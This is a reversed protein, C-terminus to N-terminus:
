LEPNKPGFRLMTHHDHKETAIPSRSLSVIKEQHRSNTDHLWLPM